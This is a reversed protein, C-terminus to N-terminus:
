PAGRDAHGCARPADLGHLGHHPDQHTDSREHQDATDDEREHVPQEAREEPEDRGRQDDAPADPEGAPRAPTGLDPRRVVGRAQLLVLAPRTMESYAPPM